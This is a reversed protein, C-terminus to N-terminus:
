RNVAAEIGEAHAPWHLFTETGIQNWLPRPGAWPIVDRSNMEDDSLARARQLISEVIAELEARVDELPTDRFHEVAKSNWEEGSPRGTANKAYSPPELPPAEEESLHGQRM